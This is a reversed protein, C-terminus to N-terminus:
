LKIRIVKTNQIGMNDSVLLNSSWLRNHIKRAVDYSKRWIYDGLHAKVKGSGIPVYVHFKTTFVDKKTCITFITRFSPHITRYNPDLNFCAYQLYIINHRHLMKNLMTLIQVWIHLYSTSWFTVKTSPYMPVKYKSCHWFSIKFNWFIGFSFDVHEYPHISCTHLNEHHFVNQHSTYWNNM